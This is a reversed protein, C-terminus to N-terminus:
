EKPRFKYTTGENSQLTLERSKLEAVSWNVGSKVFEIIMAGISFSVDDCGIAPVPYNLTADRHEIRHVPYKVPHITTLCGDYISYEGHRFSVYPANPTGIRSLLAAIPQDTDKTAAIVEWITNALENSPRAGPPEEDGANPDRPRTNNNNSDGSNANVAQPNDLNSASSCASAVCCTILVCQWTSKNSRSM